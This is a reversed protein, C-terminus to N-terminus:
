KRNRRRQTAVRSQVTWGTIPQPVTIPSDASRLLVPVVALANLAADFDVFNGQIATVTAGSVTGGTGQESEALGPLYMRGRGQRGGMATSKSVLVATNPSVADGAGTGSISGTAEYSPGTANPGYKLLCSTITTSTTFGNAIVLGFADFLADALAVGEENALAIDFGMVVEAGLPTSAGTYRFNAQAYGDPILM